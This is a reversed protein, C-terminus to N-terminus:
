FKEVVLAGDSRLDHFAINEKKCSEKLPESKYYPLNSDLILLQFDFTNVIAELSIKKNTLLLYDVKVKPSNKQVYVADSLVFITKGHFSIFRENQSKNVKRIQHYIHNSQINFSYIDEDFVVTSDGFLSSTNGDMCDVVYGSKTSYFLLMKQSNTEIRKEISIGVFGIALFFSLFLATKNKYLFSSCFFLIVGYLLFIQGFSIHIDATVSHPLAEIHVIIWNMAKIIYILALSLWHCAFGWFSFALVVVGGIVVVPVFSIILINTLLFYNPFQHFSWLSLPLLLLQAALSVTVIDWIRGDVITRPAYLSNLPRQLWIIGFVACYSFQVQFILLPNLMLLFLLSALLKSYANTNRGILDAFAVFTFMIAARMPSPFMGTICVYLWIALILVISRITRQRKTKDLFQLLFYLLMYIIGVHMGSVCLLHSAGSSAYSQVLSPDLKDDCGLLISSIVGLEDSEMNAAVFIDLFKNRMQNAIRFIFSGGKNGTTEWAGANVYGQLHIGKRALYNKYHFEHPNKPSSPESLRTYCILKDGYVIAKSRDDKALYLMAKARCPKISDNHVFQNIEVVLKMSKKKEVPPERVTVSIAQENEQYLETPPQQFKIYVSTYCISLSVIIIFILMGGISRNQYTRYKKLVLLSLISAVAVLLLGWLPIPISCYWAILIGAILPILIRILPYKNWQFM